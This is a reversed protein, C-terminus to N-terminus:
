LPHGTPTIGGRNGVTALGYIGLIEGQTIRYAHRKCTAGQTETEGIECAGFGYGKRFHKYTVGGNGKTAGDANRQLRTVLNLAIGDAVGNMTAIGHIYAHIQGIEGLHIAACEDGTRQRFAEIGIAIKGLGVLQREVKGAM